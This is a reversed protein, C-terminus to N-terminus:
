EGRLVGSALAQGFQLLASQAETASAGSLRLAQSISETIALADKQEGGLMRVAQQLRGYLTATEQIPVGIRQAIAFLERQATTFEQQGATALKLRASMMAWADAIQIVEQAKGAAWNISLFALLQTKASAVQESFASMGAKVEAMGAAAKAGATKATGALEGLSREASTLARKLGEDAGELAVLISIRNTAV